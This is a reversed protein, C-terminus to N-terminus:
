LIEGIDGTKVLSSNTDDTDLHLEFSYNEDEKLFVDKLITKKEMGILVDVKEKNILGYKERDARSLHIHRSAIICGKDLYVEKENFVLTIPLSGELDGSERVPPKIGLKFADTASIEVQNYKRFPGLVRVNEIIGKVNKITLQSTSAFEGAQSLPKFVELEETGFLEFYTEKTLHVHRASVGIKVEM